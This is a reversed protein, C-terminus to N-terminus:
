VLRIWKCFMKATTLLIEPQVQTGLAKESLKDMATLAGQLLDVDTLQSEVDVRGMVTVSVIDDKDPNVHYSTTEYFPIEATNKMIELVQLM